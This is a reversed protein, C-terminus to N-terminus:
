RGPPTTGEPGAGERATGGAATEQLRKRYLDPLNQRIEHLWGMVVRVFRTSLQRGLAEDDDMLRRVGAADFEVASTRNAAVAGFDWQHPPFIWSWGVVDGPGASRVAVPDGGPVTCDLAIEGSCILWFSDGREHEHFLRHGPQLTVPYAHGALRELWPYSLGALFPHAAVTELTSSM